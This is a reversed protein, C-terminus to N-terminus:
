HRTFTFQFVSRCDHSAAEHYRVVSHSTQPGYLGNPWKRGRCSTPQPVVLLCGDVLQPIRVSGHHSLVENNVMDDRCM